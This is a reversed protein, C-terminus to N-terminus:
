LTAELFRVLRPATRAGFGGVEEVPDAAWFHGAEPIVVNRAFFGAQKLAIFFRDSQTVPDVIEDERGYILLFKTSNKDITAYSLPSADFFVRRSAAPPGGLFKETIQDRPRYIQDHEWQAAM